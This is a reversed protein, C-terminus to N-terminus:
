KGKIQCLRCCHKATVKKMSLLKAIVPTDGTCIIIHVKLIFMEDTYADYCQIGNRSLQQVEDVMSSLFSNLDIPEKPGSTIAIPLINDEKFRDSPPLNLNLCILPWVENSRLKDTQVGDLAFQLAVARENDSSGEFLRRMRDSQMIDACWVDSIQNDSSGRLRARYMRLTRALSQNAYMLKIRHELPIYRYKQSRNESDRRPSQCSPCIDM